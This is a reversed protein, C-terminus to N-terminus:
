ESGRLKASEVADVIHVASDASPCIGVGKETQASSLRKHPKLTHLRVIWLILATLPPSCDPMPSSLLSQRKTRLTICFLVTASPAQRASFLVSSERHQKALM